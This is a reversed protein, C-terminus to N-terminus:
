KARMPQKSYHLASLKQRLYKSRGRHTQWRRRLPADGRVACPGPVSPEVRQQGLFNRRELNSRAVSAPNAPYSGRRFPNVVPLHASRGADAPSNVCGWIAVSRFWQSRGAHILNRHLRSPMRGVAVQIGLRDVSKDFSLLHRGAGLPSLREVHRCTKAVGSLGVAMEKGVFEAPRFLLLPLDLVTWPKVTASPNEKPPAKCRM